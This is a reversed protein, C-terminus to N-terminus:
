MMCTHCKCSSYLPTSFLYQCGERAKVKVEGGEGERPQIQLKRKRKICDPEAKRTALSFLFFFFIRVSWVPGVSSTDTDKKLGVTCYPGTIKRIKQRLCNWCMTEFVEFHQLKSLFPGIQLGCIANSDYLLTSWCWLLYACTYNLIM